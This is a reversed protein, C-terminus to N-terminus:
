FVCSTMWCPVTTLFSKANPLTYLSCGDCTVSIVGKTCVLHPLSLSFGKLSLSLM